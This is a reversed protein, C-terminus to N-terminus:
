PTACESVDGGCPCRSGYVENFVALQPAALLARAEELLTEGEQVHWPWHCAHAKELHARGKGVDSPLGDAGRLYALGLEFHANGQMFRDDDYRLSSGGLLDDMWDAAETHGFDAAVNLLKYALEDLDEARDDLQEFLGFLADFEGARASAVCQQFSLASGDGPHVVQGDDGRRVVPGGDPAAM